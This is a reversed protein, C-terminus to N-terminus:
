NSLPQFSFFWCFFKFVSRFEHPLGWKSLIEDIKVFHPARQCPFSCMARNKHGSLQIWYSKSDFSRSQSSGSKVANFPKETSGLTPFGMRGAISKSPSLNLLTHLFANLVSIMLFIRIMIEVPIWVESLCRFFSVDLRSRPFRTRGLFDSYNFSSLDIWGRHCRRPGLLGHIGSGM